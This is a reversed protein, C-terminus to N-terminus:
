AEVTRWNNGRPSFVEDTYNDVCWADSGFMRALRKAYERDGVKVSLTTRASTPWYVTYRIHEAAPIQRRAQGSDTTNM